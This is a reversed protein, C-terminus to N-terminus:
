SSKGRFLALKKKKSFYSNPKELCDLRDTLEAVAADSNTEIDKLRNNLQLAATEIDKLVSFQSGTAMRVDALEQRLTSLGSRSAEVQETSTTLEASFQSMRVTVMDFEASLDKMSEVVEEISTTWPASDIKATLSAIEKVAFHDQAQRVKYYYEESIDSKPREFDSIEDATSSNSIDRRMVPLEEGMKETTSSMTGDVVEGLTRTLIAIEEKRAQREEELACEVVELGKNMEILGRALEKQSAVGDANLAKSVLTSIFDIKELMECKLAVIEEKRESRERELQMVLDPNTSQGLTTMRKPGVDLGYAGPPLTVHAGLPHIVQSSSATLVTRPLLTSM